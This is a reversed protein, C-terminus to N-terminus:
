FLEDLREAIEYVYEIFWFWFAGGGEVGFKADRRGVFKVDIWKRMKSTPRVKEGQYNKCFMFGYIYNGRRGKCKSFLIRPRLHFIRFLPFTTHRQHITRFCIKMIPAGWTIRVIFIIYYYVQTSRIYPSCKHNENSGM